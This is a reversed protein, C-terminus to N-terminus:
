TVALATSKDPYIQFVQDLRAIELIQRVSARLGFLLLRGGYKQIRQLSEALFRAGFDKFAATPGHYLELAFLPDECATVATTPAALDLAADAIEGLLPQLRDGAVFGGLAARAIQPLTSLGTFAGANVTPLATPIYLGGDPALGQAIADSLTVPPAGGRTSVFRLDSM